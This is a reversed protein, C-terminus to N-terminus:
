TRLTAIEDSTLVATMRTRSSQGIRVRLRWARSYVLSSFWPMQQTPWGSAPRCGTTPIPARVGIAEVSDAFFGHTALHLNHFGPALRRFAEETAGSQKLM